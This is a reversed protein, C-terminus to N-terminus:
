GNCQCKTAYVILSSSDFLSLRLVISKELIPESSACFSTLFDPM